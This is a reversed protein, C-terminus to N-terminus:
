AGADAALGAAEIGAIACVEDNEASDGSIGVAGLLAGRADRVLVSGRVPVMGGQSVTGLSQFFAPNAAARRALDRGGVGMGLAGRAKAIAIDGRLMSTGDDARFVKLCARADLVAVALPAFGHRRAAALAESAIKDAQPLGLDSPHTTM